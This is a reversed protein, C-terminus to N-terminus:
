FAVNKWILLFISKLLLYHWRRTSNFWSLIFPLFVKREIEDGTDSEHSYNKQVASLLDCVFVVLTEFLTSNLTKVFHDLPEQKNNNWLSCKTELKAIIQSM